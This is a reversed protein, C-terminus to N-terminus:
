GASSRACPSAARAAERAPACWSCARAAQRRAQRVRVRHVGRKKAKVSVAFRVSEGAQKLTVTKRLVRRNKRFLSVEVPTGATAPALTGRVRVRQGPIGVARRGARLYSRVSVTLRAAPSLQLPTSQAPAYAPADPAAPTYNATFETPGTLVVTLRAKGNSNTTAQGAAAAGALFAIAKGPLPKGAAKLTATLKAKGGPPVPAKPGTLKLTTAAPAAVASAPLLVAAGAAAACIWGGRRM